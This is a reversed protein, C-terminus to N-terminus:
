SRGPLGRRHPRGRGGGGGGGGRGTHGRTWPERTREARHVREHHLVRLLLRPPEGPREHRVQDHVMRLLALLPQAVMRQRLEELVLDLLAPLIVDVLDTGLERAARREPGLGQVLDERAAVLDELLGGHRGAFPKGFEVPTEGLEPAKKSTAAFVRLSPSSSCAIASPLMQASGSRARCTTSSTFVRLPQSSGYLASRLRMSSPRASASSASASGSSASVRSRATSASWIAPSSSRSSSRFMSRPGSSARSASSVM